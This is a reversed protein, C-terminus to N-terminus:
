GSPRTDAAQLYAHIGRELAGVIQTRRSTTDATPALLAQAEDPHTLFAPEVLVAPMTTYRLVRAGFHRSGFDIADSQESGFLEDQLVAAMANALAEDSAKSHLALAGNISPDDVGNFHVSVTLDAAAANCHAAREELDREVDTQRTLSVQAGQEELRQGLAVAIDLVVESERLIRGDAFEFVAGPDAGGHGPDLCIRYGSIAPTRAPDAAGDSATSEDLQPLASPVPADDPAPTHGAHRTDLLALIGLVGLVGIGALALWQAAAHTRRVAAWWGALLWWLWYVFSM